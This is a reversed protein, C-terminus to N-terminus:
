RGDRGGVVLQSVRNKPCAAREGRHDIIREEVVEAQLIELSSGPPRFPSYVEQQWKRGVYVQLM